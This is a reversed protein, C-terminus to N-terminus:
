RLKRSRTLKQFFKRLGWDCLLASLLGIISGALVDIPFHQGVYIRSYGVVLAIFWFLIGYNKNKCSFAAIAAWAFVTATHGSPFSNFTHLTIGGPFNAYGTDKLYYFPRRADVVIKLIQVFIGSLAYASVMLLATVKRRLFFLLLALAILFIGDGLWTVGKFFGTLFPVHFPNMVVFSEIRTYVLVLTGLGLFLFACGVLFIKNQTLLTKM